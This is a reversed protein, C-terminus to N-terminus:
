VKALNSRFDQRVRNALMALVWVWCRMNKAVLDFPKQTSVPSYEVSM